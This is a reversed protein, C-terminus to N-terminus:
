GNNRGKQLELCFSNGRDKYPEVWVKGRHIDAIRKVIALGLGTGMHSNGNLKIKRNFVTERKELPIPTGLDNVRVLIHNHDSETEIIIRKGDSAYRIANSIYNKFVEAIIPNVHITEQYEPFFEVVMEYRRILNAYEEIVEQIIKNLDMPRLEIQEGSSIKALTSVNEIVKLVRDSSDKIGKIIQNEAEQKYLIDSLGSISGADNKLDHTIVDLLLEKMANTEQLADKIKKREIAYTLARKLTDGQIDSKVLFDQAGQQVALRGTESDNLGTLVVIPIEPFATFLSKFSNLGQSAPLNLDPVIIEFPSISVAELATELRTQVLIDYAGDAPYNLIERIYDADQIDDEILLIQVATKM